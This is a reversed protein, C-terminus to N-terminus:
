TSKKVGGSRGSDGTGERVEMRGETEAVARYWVVGVLEEVWWGGAGGSEDTWRSTAQNRRDPIEEIQIM